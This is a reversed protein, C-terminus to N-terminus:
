KKHSNNNYFVQLQCQGEREQNNMKNIEDQHYQRNGRQNQHCTKQAEHNYIRQHVLPPTPARPGQPLPQQGEQREGERIVSPDSRLQLEKERRRKNARM